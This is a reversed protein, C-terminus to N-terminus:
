FKRLHLLELFLKQNQESIVKIDRHMMIKNPNYIIEGGCGNSM